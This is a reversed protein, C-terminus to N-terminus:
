FLPLQRFILNRLSNNNGGVRGEGLPSPAFGKGRPPFHFPTFLLNLLDVHIASIRFFKEAPL